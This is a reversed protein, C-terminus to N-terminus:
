RPAGTLMGALQELEAVIEQKAHLANEPNSGAGIKEVKRALQRLRNATKPLTPLDVTISIADAM